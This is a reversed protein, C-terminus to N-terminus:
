VADETEKSEDHFNRDDNAWSTIEEKLSDSPPTTEEGLFAGVISHQAEHSLERFLM